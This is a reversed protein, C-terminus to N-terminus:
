IANSVFKEEDYLDLYNTVHLLEDLLEITTMRAQRGAPLAQGSDNKEKIDSSEPTVENGLIVLAHDNIKDTM